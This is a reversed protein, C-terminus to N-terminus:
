ARSLSSRYGALNKLWQSVQRASRRIDDRPDFVGVSALEGPVDTMLGAILRLGHHEIRDLMRSIDRKSTQNSCTVLVLSGIQKLAEFAAEEESLPPLNYIVYADKNDLQQHFKEMRRGGIELVSGDSRAHRGAAPIYTLGEPLVTMSAKGRLMSLLCETTRSAHMVLDNKSARLDADVFIVKEGKLYLSLATNIAATSTGANGEM